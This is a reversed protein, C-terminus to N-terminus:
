LGDKDGKLKVADGAAASMSAGFGSQPSDPRSKLWRDKEAFERVLIWTM